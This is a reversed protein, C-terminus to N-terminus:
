STDIGDSEWDWEEALSHPMPRHRDTPRNVGDVPVHYKAPGTLEMLQPYPLSFEMDSLASADDPHCYISEWAQDVMLGNIRRVDEIGCFKKRSTDDQSLELWRDRGLPLIISDANLCGVGKGSFCAADQPFRTSDIPMGSKIIPNDGLFLGPKDSIYLTWGSFRNVIGEALPYISELISTIYLNQHYVFSNRRMFKRLSKRSCFRRKSNDEGIQVTAKTMVDMMAEMWRRTFPSRLDLAVIWLAIRLKYDNTKIYGDGLLGVNRIFRLIRDTECELDAFFHEVRVDDVLTDKDVITYFDKYYAVKYISSPGQIREGRNRKMIKDDLSFHRLLAGAPLHHHKIPSNSNGTIRPAPGVFGIKGENTANLASSGPILTLLQHLRTLLQIHQHAEGYLSKQLAPRPVVARRQSM